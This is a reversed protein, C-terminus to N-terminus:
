PNFFEMMDPANAALGPAPATSGGGSASSANVGLASLTLRLTSQHQYTSTSTYGAKAKSSVVVWATRGGGNVSSTNARDFLIILLGDQKFQASNLLPTLTTRLFADVTDLGCGSQSNHCDNPVIMGFNPLAGLSIDTQLQSLPVLNQRQTVDNQVDSLLALVNHHRVYLGQDPGLYGVSPISEAYSKWTKGAGVLQRVINDGTFVTADNDNSTVTDGVALMYFNGISPQVNGYYQLAKGGANALSDLFPMPSPGSSPFVSLYDTELLGVVFVHNFSPTTSAATVNLVAHGQVGGATATITAAGATKSIVKGSANVTAVTTDSSSWTIVQGLIPSGNQDIPTATLQVSDGVVLNPSSPLVAVTNVSAAVTTTDKCAAASISLAAALAVLGFRNHFEM